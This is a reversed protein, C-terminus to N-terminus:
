AGFAFDLDYAGDVTTGPTTAANPLASGAVIREWGVRRTTETTPRNGWTGDGNQTVILPVSAPLDTVLVTM